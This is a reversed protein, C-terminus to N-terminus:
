PAPTQTSPTYTVEYVNLESFTVSVPADGAGKVFVGLAGNPSSPDSISFQYRGNLFLRMESGAAWVGIRVEGPAGPPADGSPLPAQMVLRVSNLIREAYLMSNCTLTFRYFSNGSSRIIIGYSDEARCLSLHATIEAYFDGFTEERNLSALYIDPEAVLTLRNRSVAASAQDSAATDWASPNSFDDSFLLAGVGPSMEPTATPTPIVKLTPTASPPFWVITPSPPATESPSPLADPLDAELPLCASVLLFGLFLLSPPFRRM